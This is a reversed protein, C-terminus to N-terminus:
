RIGTDYAVEFTMAPGGEGITVDVPQATGMLGEVPQPTLVYHGPELSIAFDGNADSMGRGVERGADDTVILVAGAIPRDACAPDPPNQMVPCTPGATVRGSVGLEGGGPNGGIGGIIDLPVAPGQEGVFGVAGDTAVGYTWTHEDICGSPCDGWGIRVVVEFGDATPTVRYWAAQGILNPDHAGIHRFRSDTALVLRAAEDPTTITIPPTSPPPTLSPATSGGGATCAAAVLALTAFLVTFPKM